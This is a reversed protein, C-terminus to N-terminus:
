KKRCPELGLVLRAPTVTRRHYRLMSCIILKYHKRDDPPMGLTGGRGLCARFIGMKGCFSRLLSPHLGPRDHRTRTVSDATVTIVTAHAPFAGRNRIQEGIGPLPSQKGAPRVPRDQRLGNGQCRTSGYRGRASQSQEARNGAGFQSQKGNAGPRGTPRLGREKFYNGTMRGDGLQSRKARRARPERGAKGSGFARRPVSRPGPWQSQKAYHAMPWNAKNGMPKLGDM